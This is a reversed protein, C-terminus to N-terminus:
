SSCPRSGGHRHSPRPQDESQGGRGCLDVRMDDYADVDVASGSASQLTITVRVPREDELLVTTLVDLFLAELKQRRAVLQDQVTRQMVNENVSLEGSELERPTRTGLDDLCSRLVEKLPDLMSKM